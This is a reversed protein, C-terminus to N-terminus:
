SNTVNNARPAFSLQGNRSFSVNFQPKANFVSM